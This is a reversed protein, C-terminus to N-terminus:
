SWKGAWFTSVKQKNQLFTDANVLLALLSPRTSNCWGSGISGLGEYPM